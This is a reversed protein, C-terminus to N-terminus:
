YEVTWQGSAKESIVFPYSRERPRESDYFIGNFEKGDDSLLYNNDESPPKGDIGTVKGVGDLYVTSLIKRLFKEMKPGMDDEAFDLETEETYDESAADVEYPLRDAPISYVSDTEPWDSLDVSMLADVIECYDDYSADPGLDVRDILELMSVKGDVYEHRLNELYSRPFATVDGNTTEWLLDTVRRAGESFSRDNGFRPNSDFTM